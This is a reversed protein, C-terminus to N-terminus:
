EQPTTEPSQAPSIEREIVIIQPQEGSRAATISDALTRNLEMLNQNIEGPLANVRDGLDRFQSQLDLMMSLLLGMAGLLVASVVAVSAFLATQGGELRAIRERIMMDPDYADDPPGSSGQGEPGVSYLNPKRM